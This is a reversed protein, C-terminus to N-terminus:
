EYGVELGQQILRQWRNDLAQCVACWQLSSGVVGGHERQLHTSLLGEILAVDRELSDRSPQLPLDSATMIVYFCVM